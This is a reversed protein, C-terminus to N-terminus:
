VLVLFRETIKLPMTEQNTDPDEDIIVSDDFPMFLYANTSDFNKPGTKSVFYRIIVPFSKSVSYTATVECYFCPTVVDEHPIFQTFRIKCQSM